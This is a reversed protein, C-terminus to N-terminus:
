EGAQIREVAVSRGLAPCVRLWVCPTPNEPVGRWKKKRSPRAVGNETKGREREARGAQRDWAVASSALRHGRKEMGAQERQGDGAQQQGTAGGV